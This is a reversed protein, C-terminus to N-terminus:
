KHTSPARNIPMNETPKPNFNKAKKGVWPSFVFFITNKEFCCACPMHCSVFLLLERGM